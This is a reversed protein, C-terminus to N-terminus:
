NDQAYFGSPWYILKLRRRIEFNEVLADRMRKYENVDEVAAFNLPPQTSEPIEQMKIDFEKASDNVSFYNPDVSM